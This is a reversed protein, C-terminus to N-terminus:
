SENVVINALNLTLDIGFNQFSNSTIIRKLHARVVVNKFFFKFFPEAIIKLVLWFVSHGM